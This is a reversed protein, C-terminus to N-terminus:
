HAIENDCAESGLHNAGRLPGGKRELSPLHSRGECVQTIIFELQCGYVNLQTLSTRESHCASVSCSAETRKLGTGGPYARCSPSSFSQLTIDFRATEASAKVVLICAGTRM